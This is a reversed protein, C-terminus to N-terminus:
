LVRLGECRAVIEHPPGGPGRGIGQDAMEFVRFAPGRPGACVLADAGRKTAARSSQPAPHCGNAM